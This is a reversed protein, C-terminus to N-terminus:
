FTSWVILHRTSHTSISFVISGYEALAEDIEALIRKREPNLDRRLAGLFLEHVENSDIGNLETELTSLRDQKTLLM